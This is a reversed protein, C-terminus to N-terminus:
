SPLKMLGPRGRWSGHLSRRRTEPWNAGELVWNKLIETQAEPLRALAGTVANRPPMLKKHDDPLVTTTYIKSKEPKGPVITSAVEFAAERTSLDVDTRGEEFDTGKPNHCRVCHLELIHRVEKEFDVAASSPLVTSVLLFAALSRCPIKM